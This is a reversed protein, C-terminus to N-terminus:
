CIKKGRRNNLRYNKGFLQAVARASIDEGNLIRIIQQELQQVRKHHGVACFSGKGYEARALSYLDFQINLRDYYEQLLQERSVYFVKKM